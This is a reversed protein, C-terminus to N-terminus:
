AKSLVLETPKHTLNTHLYALCRLKPV